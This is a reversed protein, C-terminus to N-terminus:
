FYTSTKIGQKKAVQIEPHSQDINPHILWDLDKTIHDPSNGKEFQVGKDLLPEIRVNVALDCGSVKYGHEVMWGALASLGAGGLGLFHVKM